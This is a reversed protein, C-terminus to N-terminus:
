HWTQVKKVVRSLLIGDLCYSVGLSSKLTLKEPTYCLDRFYVLELHVAQNIQVTMESRHSAGWPGREHRRAIMGWRCLFDSNQIM